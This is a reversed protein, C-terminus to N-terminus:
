DKANKFSLDMGLSADEYSSTATNYHKPQISSIIRDFVGPNVEKGTAENIELYDKKIPQSNAYDFTNLIQDFGNPSHFYSDRSTNLQIKCAIDVPTTLLCNGYYSGGTSWQAPNNVINASVPENLLKYTNTDFPKTYASFALACFIAALGLLYKKM